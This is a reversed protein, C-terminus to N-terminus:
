LENQAGKDTTGNRFSFRARSSKLEQSASKSLKIGIGHEQMGAKEVIEGNILEFLRNRNEPAALFDEFERVTITKRGIVM